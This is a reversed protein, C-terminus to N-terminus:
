RAVAPESRSVVAVIQPVLSLLAERMQNAAVPGAEMLSDFRTYEDQWATASFAFTQQGLFQRTRGNYLAVGIGVTRRYNNLQGPASWVAIPSIQMLIDADVTALHDNADAQYVQGDTDRAPWRLKPAGRDSSPVVSTRIGQAEFAARLSKMLDNKLSLGPVRKLLEQHYNESKKFTEDAAGQILGAMAGAAAGGLAANGISQPPGALSQQLHNAQIEDGITLPNAPSKADAADLVFFPDLGPGFHRGGAAFIGVMAISKMEATDVIAVTKPATFDQTHIKPPTGCGALALLMSFLTINRSTTVHM